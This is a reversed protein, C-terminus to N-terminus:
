HAKRWDWPMAFEGAWLGRRASRAAEEQSVYAKSYRRYAVALGQEVLWANLDVGAAFCTAVLRKYRDRERGECTVLARGIKDALAFAAAQGCRYEAGAANTCVQRSEPADIGLLRIREGHIEVTDADIVTAQGTLTEASAPGALLTVVVAWFSIRM